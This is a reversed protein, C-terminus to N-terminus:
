INENFKEGFYKLIYTPISKKRHQGFHLFSADASAACSSDADFPLNAFKRDIRNNTRFHIDKYSTGACRMCMQEITKDDLIKAKKILWALVMEDGSYSDTVKTSLWKWDAYDRM